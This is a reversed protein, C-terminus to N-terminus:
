RPAPRTSPDTIRCRVHTIEGDARNFSQQSRVPQGCRECSGIARGLERQRLVGLQDQARVLAGSLPARWSTDDCRKLRM